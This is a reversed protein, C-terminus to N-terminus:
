RPGREQRIRLPSEHEVFKTVARAPEDDDGQAERQWKEGRLRVRLLAAPVGGVVRETARLDACGRWPECRRDAHLDFRPRARGAIFAHFASRVRAPRKLADDNTPVNTSWVVSKG